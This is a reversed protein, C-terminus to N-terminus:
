GRGDVGHAALRQEIAQEFVAWPQAGSVALNDVAFFPVSNVGLNRAQEVDAQVADQLEADDLDAAFEYLDSVGAEEAFAILKERPLPPHGSEPADAHVAALFEWFRGQRGAARGAVAAAVSDDGFLPLDRMEYRVLGADVYERILTPMTERTFRACFPCRFDSYEVVVVPADPSGLALPDEPLRRALGPDDSAADSPADSGSATPESGREPEDSRQTGLVLLGVGILALLLLGAIRKTRVSPNPRHASEPAPM